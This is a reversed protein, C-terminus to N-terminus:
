LLSQPNVEVRWGELPLDSLLDAPDAGRLIIQYRYRGDLRSYFCPAPGILEIRVHSRAAILGQLHSALAGARREARGPNLDRVELRVLRGFPPYGIERRYAMEANYFAEYDHGAAARIVYSDPEFTQLVVEGGLRSRGARGAVQTLVQFVREAARYDPLHLGVDALVIGVLTVLPLDLGKALMQTGVLVDAQHNAFHTLILDHAGKAQTTDRDWRLTRAEPFLARVEEEVRETGMGYQRVQDSGCGPCTGPMSRSYGCHHCQLDSEARHFTLSVEDCRPCRMVHGCNRCFVYTGAGRRNLFLIAQQRQMLTATLTEQLARSFISRNGAKLERRMDVVRVPPLVESSVVEGTAGDIGLIRRPLRLLTWAGREARRRSEISPTASGLICVAGLLGAYHIAAERAHYFPPESQYYSGDHEEDLVILGIDPLPVFLASRPGIVVSLDGRRARRWTDYQEGPSLQSHILGVEGPFRSMFRRVTQATLAIEPVLVIAQRGAAIVREVARIYIETKGSGTVGQVLFPGAPAGDIAARIAEWARRQDPTLDPRRRAADVEIDELPDRFIETERLEVLEKEALVQLDSLSGGSHAYVWSVNVPVGERILFRVIKGRRELTAATQGVETLAAEAKEPKVALQATRIFKPRVQPPPLVPKGAVVDRQVLSRISARWNTRPVARDIQRGRLPGRRQLLAVLRGQIATLKLGPLGKFEPSVLRYEVDAQQSLGTPLMLGIVAALPSLTEAALRFAFEIQAPTLAPAEDLLAAVPRTEPVAPSAVPRIVVGQVTQVGFPVEVLQGPELRGELDPPLHYHFVGSVQPVNVAIEVFQM